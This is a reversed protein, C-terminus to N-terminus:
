IKKEARLIEMLRLDSPYKLLEEAEAPSAWRKDPVEDPTLARGDGGTAEMLFWDVRKDVPVSRRLFSYRAVHLPRLILCDLGAEEKVERLAALEPTEGEELHGKPFTWVEEGSLNRMKILLLRGDKIVVGGASFEKKEGTGTM